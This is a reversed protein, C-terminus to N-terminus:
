KGCPEGCVFIIKKEKGGVKCFVAGTEMERHIYKDLIVDVGAKYRWKPILFGGRERVM